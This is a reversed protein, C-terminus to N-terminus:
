VAWSNTSVALSLREARARTDCALRDCPPPQDSLFALLSSNTAESADFPTPHRSGRVVVMTAHLRAALEHKEALPTHDHEAAILMTRSGLQDIRDTASWQELALSMGLYASAPVAAIAAAARERMWQQWPEPFLSAAFLSAARRMGLLRVLTSSSRAFIWKRWHDRYTALTNILALRPVGKSRQLAMELAVAGGMSFGVINVRRVELEDLFSWLTSAFGAITYPGQPPPSRGCGPLDPVIVRFRGKLAPVQLGWDAGSCGLGHILLVPDGAGHQRWHLRAGDQLCTTM